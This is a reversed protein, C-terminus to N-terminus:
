ALRRWYRQRLSGVSMKLLQLRMGLRLVTIKGIRSIRSISIINIASNQKQPASAGPPIVLAICNVCDLIPSVATSSKRWIM